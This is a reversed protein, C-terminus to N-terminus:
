CYRRSTKEKDQEALMKPGLLLFGTATLNDRRETETEAPLLDGALQELVIRDYPKDINYSSVIYDRYRWAVPYKHNEDAGNSDAYRALDLWYRGWREGYHPSALLRDVVHEYANPREDALFTDLEEVSPPLGILDFTARRLWTARNAEDALELQNEELQELIFRDIPSSGWPTVPGPVSVKARRQFSWFKRAEELDIGHKASNTTPEHRPDAAGQRIWEEFLAITKEDLQKGPPMELSEYKIAEILLSRDPSGAEIVAGSDGGRRMAPRSDLLLGGESKRHANSHCEYCHTILAPRIHTEFFRVHEDAAAHSVHSLFALMVAVWGQLGNQMTARFANNM